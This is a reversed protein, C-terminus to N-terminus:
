SLYATGAFPASFTIVVTNLDPYSVLGEVETGGSDMVMVGAPRYGLNHNITWVSAASSQVFVSQGGSPGSPGAPGAPGQPGQVRVIETVASEQDSQSEPIEEPILPARVTEFRSMDTPYRVAVSLIELARRNDPPVMYAVNEPDEIVARAHNYTIAGTTQYPIGFGTRLTVRSPVRLYLRDGTARICYDGTRIRFDPTSELDVEDSNVTGRSHAKQDKDVDSFIAPRVIIAKYGGEFTTGYCDPCKYQDGQGYADSIRSEISTDGLYCRQCRGVLGATFDELHWMLAFIAYEGLQYLAENHRMREQEVAWHQRDRAWYVLPQHPM